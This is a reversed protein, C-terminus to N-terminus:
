RYYAERLIEQLLKDLGREEIPDYFDEDIYDWFEELSPLAEEKFTDRIVDLLRPWVKTCVTRAIEHRKPYIKEYFLREYHKEVESKRYKGRIEYREEIKRVVVRICRDINRRAESIEDKISREIKKWMGGLVDWLLAGTIANELKGVQYEIEREEVTKEM